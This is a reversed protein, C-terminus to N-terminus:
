ENKPWTYLACLLSLSHFHAAISSKEAAACPRSPRYYLKECCWSTWLLLSDFFSNPSSTTTILATSQHFLKAVSAHLPTKVLAHPTSKKASGHFLTRRASTNCVQAGSHV